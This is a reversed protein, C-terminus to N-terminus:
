APKEEDITANERPQVAQETAKRCCAPAFHTAGDERVKPLRFHRSTPAPANHMAEHTKAPSPHLAAGPSIMAFDESASPARFHLLETQSDNSEGHKGNHSEAIHREGLGPFM